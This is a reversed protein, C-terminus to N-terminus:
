ITSYNILYNWAGFQTESGAAGAPSSVTLTNRFYLTLTAGPALTGQLMGNATLTFTTDLLGVGIAIRYRSVANLVQAWIVGDTSYHLWHFVGGSDILKARLQSNLIATWNMNRCTTNTFSLPGVVGWPTDVQVVTLDFTLPDISDQELISGSTHEPITRLEGAEDCYVPSGEDDDCPFDLAGEGWEGSTAVSLTDAAIEVGCGPLLTGLASSYLGDPLLGIANGGTASIKVDAQITRNLTGSATLDVSATDVVANPESPAVYLGNGLLVLANDVSNSLIVDAEITRNLTGSLTIDISESDVAANPVDDGASLPFECGHQNVLVQGDEGEIVTVDYGVKDDIYETLCGRCFVGEIDGCVLLNPPVLSEDDYQFVYRYTTICKRGCGQTTKNWNLLTAPITHLVFPTEPDDGEACVYPAIIEPRICLVVEAAECSACSLKTQSSYTVLQLAM